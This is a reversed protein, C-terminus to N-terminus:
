LVAASSSMRWPLAYRTGSSRSRPPARASADRPRPQPRPGWTRRCTARRLGRRLAACARRLRATCRVSGRGQPSTKEFTHVPGTFGLKEFTQIRDTRVSDRSMSASSFLSRLGELGGAPLSHAPRRGPAGAAPCTSRRQSAWTRRRARGGRTTGPARRRRGRPPRALSRVTRARCRAPDRSSARCSQFHALSCSQRTRCVRGTASVPSLPSHARLAQSPVPLATERAFSCSARAVARCAALISCGSGSQFPLSTSSDLKESSAEAGLGPPAPASKAPLISGLLQNLYLAPLAVLTAAASVSSPM